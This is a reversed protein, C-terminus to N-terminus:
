RVDYVFNFFLGSINRKSTFSNSRNVLLHNPWFISALRILGLIGHIRHRNQLKTLRSCGQRHLLPHSSYTGGWITDYLEMPAMYQTQDVGVTAMEEMSLTAPLGGAYPNRFSLYHDIQNDHNPLVLYFKGMSSRFRPVM